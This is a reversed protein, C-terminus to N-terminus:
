NFGNVFAALLWTGKRANYIFGLLDTQGATTGLTPQPLRGALILAQLMQVRRVGVLRPSGTWNAESGEWSGLRAARVGM